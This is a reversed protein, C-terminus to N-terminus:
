FTMSWTGFPKFANGNQNKRVTVDAKQKPGSGITESLVGGNRLYFTRASGNIVLRYNSNAAADDYWLRATGSSHGPVGEAIRALVRVELRDGPGFTPSGELVSTLSRLIANQFGSSGGNVGSLVAETLLTENRLVEVKLDFYTGVDDSNKLGVWVQTASEVPEDEVVVVPWFAASSPVFGAVGGSNNIAYAVARPQGPALGLDVMGDSATWIFAHDQGDAHQTQGVIHGAENIGYAFSINGALVGLDLFGDAASWRFAHLFGSGSYYGAVVGSENVAWAQGDTGSPLPIPQMGTAQTYIFPTSGSFGVIHGANSISLAVSPATGPLTGLDEMGVADSHRFARGFGDAGLSYGVTVGHDNIDHAVGFVGGLTGLDVMGTSEHWRFAHRQGAVNDAEGVVSGSNNIGFARSGPGGLTGLDQLGSAATWRFARHTCTGFGGFGAVVGADNIARAEGNCVTGLLTPTGVTITADPGRLMDGRPSPSNFAESCAFTALLALLLLVRSMSSSEMPSIYENPLLEHNPRPPPAIRSSKALMAWQQIGM